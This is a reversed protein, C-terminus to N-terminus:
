PWPSLKTETKNETQNQDFVLSFAIFFSLSIFTLTFHVLFSIYNFHSLKTLSFCFWFLYAIVILNFHFLLLNGIASRPWYVASHGPNSAHLCHVLTGTYWHVTGAALQSNSVLAL